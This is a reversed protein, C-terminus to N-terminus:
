IGSLAVILLVYGGVAGVFVGCLAAYYWAAPRIFGAIVAAFTSVPLFFVYFGCINEVFHKLGMVILAFASLCVFSAASAIAAQILRRRLGCQGMGKM